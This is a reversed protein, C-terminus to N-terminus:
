DPRRGAVQNSAHSQANIAKYFYDAVRKHAEANPHWEYRVQYKAKERLYNPIIEEIFRVDLGRRKLGDRMKTTFVGSGERGRELDDWLLVMVKVGPLQRQLGATARAIVAYFREADFDNTSRSKGFMRQYLKAKELERVVRRPVFVRDNLIYEGEDFRGKYVIDDAGTRIYRPGYLDWGGLGAARGIGTHIAQYIAFIPKKPDCDITKRVLDHEIQAYYQHASYGTVAFNYIRYTGGSLLGLQYAATEDDRVGEGWAISDGFFLVCADPKDKAPPSIRLGNAGITYTVDYSLKGRVKRIAQAAVGPRPRYGLIPDPMSFFYGARAYTGELTAGTDQRAGTRIWLFAEAASIALLLAAVNIWLGRREGGVKAVFYVVAV